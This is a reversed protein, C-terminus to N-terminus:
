LPYYCYKRSSKQVNYMVSVMSSNAEKFYGSLMARMMECRAILMARHAKIIGDDLEFAVDTFLASSLCKNISKKM